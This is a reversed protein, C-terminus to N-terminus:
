ARDETTVAALPHPLFQERILREILAQRAYQSQGTCFCKTAKALAEAQEISISVGIELPLRAMDEGLIRNNVQSYKFSLAVVLM